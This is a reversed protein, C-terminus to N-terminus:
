LFDSAMWYFTLYVFINSVLLSCFYGRAALTSRFILLRPNKQIIAM